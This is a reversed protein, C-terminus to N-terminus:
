QLAGGPEASSSAGRLIQPVIFLAKAEGKLSRLAPGVSLDSAFDDLTLNAKDALQQQEAFEAASAPMVSAPPPARRTALAM